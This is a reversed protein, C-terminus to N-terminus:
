PAEGGAPAHRASALLREARLADDPTNVNFFLVEPDGTQRVETEDVFRVAPGMSRVFDQVSGGPLRLAREMAGACRVDYVGVLPEVRGRWRPVTVLWGPSAAVLLALLEPALLPMDVPIVLVRGRGAARLGTYLGALPGREKVEDAVVRASSAQATEDRTVVVLDDVLPRLVGLARELLTLGGIRIFRKDAGMRVSRGGALVVGVLPDRAAGVTPPERRWLAM